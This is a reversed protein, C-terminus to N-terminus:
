HALAAGDEKWPGTTVPSGLTVPVMQYLPFFVSTKPLLLTQHGSDAVAVQCVTYRGRAWVLAGAKVRAVM